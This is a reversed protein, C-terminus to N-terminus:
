KAARVAIRGTIGVASREGARRQRTIVAVRQTVGGPRGDPRADPSADREPRLGFAPRRRIGIAAPDHLSAEAHNRRSSGGCSSSM